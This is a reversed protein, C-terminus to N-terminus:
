VRAGSGQREVIRFEVGAADRIQRIHRTAAPRIAQLAEGRAPYRGRRRPQRMALVMRILGSEMEFLRWLGLRELLPKQKAWIRLPLDVDGVAYPAVISVPARWIGGKYNKRNLRRGKDDRLHASSVNRSRM